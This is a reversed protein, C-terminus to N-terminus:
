NGLLQLVNARSQNSQAQMAVSSENLISQRVQETVARGMDADSIQSRTSLTNVNQNAINEISSMLGNQQAGFQSQTTILQESTLQLGELAIGANEPNSINLGSLGLSDPTLNALNLASNSEGLAIDVSGNDGNLLNLGNFSTNNALGNISQINQQFELNLINRQQSNLTGNQAQIALENMRLVNENINQTGATATQLLSIGSNANQTAVDQTNIQSTLNSVIAQGAPNDASQNIKSGSTLSTNLSNMGAIANSSSIPNYSEIAM